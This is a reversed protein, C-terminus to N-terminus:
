RAATPGALSLAAATAAAFFREISALLIDTQERIAAPSRGAMHPTVLLNDAEILAAPLAPEGEWVDLGAGAIGGAALAAALAATDVVSGRAINILFGDPGLLRLVEADILGRTASGGPCAAVLFDCEAALSRLDPIHTWPRAPRASRTHYLVRMGFAEARTAIACGIQGLGLLGLTSRHLTPREGRIEEWKGARLARDRSPMDRALALMLGLAHDAVTEANAGPANTVAIGRQEAAARDVNEDGAGFCAVLGLAPLRAIAAADLGASGNTVVARVAALQGTSLGAFSGVAAGADIVDYRCTLDTLCAEPLPILALVRQRGATKEIASSM